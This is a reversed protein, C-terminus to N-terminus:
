YDEAKNETETFHSAQANKDCKAISSYSNPVPLAISDTQGL